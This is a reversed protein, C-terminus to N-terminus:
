DQDVKENYASSRLYAILLKEELTDVDCTSINVTENFECM